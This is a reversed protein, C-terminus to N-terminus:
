TEDRCRSPSALRAFDHARSRSPRATRSIPGGGKLWECFPTPRACALREFLARDLLAAVVPPGAGFRSPPGLAVCPVGRHRLHELFRTEVVIYLFRVGCARSWRYIAKYLLNAIPAAGSPRMGCPLTTLRTVEATGRGKPLRYGPRLLARFDGELMFPREPPIFRVLGLLQGHDAFVGLTTSGPDYRDRERGDPCAPVWGLQECYVAHRLRFAQDHEEDTEVIRITYGAERFLPLAAM